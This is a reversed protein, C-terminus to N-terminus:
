TSLGGKKDFPASLPHNPAADASEMLNLAIKHFVNFRDVPKGHTTNIKGCTACNQRLNYIRPERLHPPIGSFGRLSLREGPAFRHFGAIRTEVTIRTEEAIRTGIAIRTEM